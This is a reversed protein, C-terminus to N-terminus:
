GAPVPFHCLFTLIAGYHQKIILTGNNKKSEMAEYKRYHQEQGKGIERINQLKITENATLTKSQM